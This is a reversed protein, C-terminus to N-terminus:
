RIFFPLSDIFRNKRIYKKIHGYGDSKFYLNLISYITETVAKFLLDIRQKFPHFFYKRLEKPITFVIQRHQVKYTTQM